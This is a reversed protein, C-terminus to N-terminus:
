AESLMRQKGRLSKFSVLQMKNALWRKILKRQTCPLVGTM